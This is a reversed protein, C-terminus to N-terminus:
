FDIVAPTMSEDLDEKEDRKLYDFTTLYNQAHMFSLTM